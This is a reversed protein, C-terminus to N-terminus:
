IWLERTLFPCQLSATKPDPLSSLPFLSCIVWDTGRLRSSCGPIRLSSKLCISAVSYLPFFTSCICRVTYWTPLYGNLPFFSELQTRFECSSVQHHWHYLVQRGICSICSVHTWDRPLSSARSSPMAVWKRIRAQLIGHVSSGPPSCGMHNCLSLCSM